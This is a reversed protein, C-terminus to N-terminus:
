ELIANTITALIHLCIPMRCEPLTAPISGAEQAQMWCGFDIARETHEKALVIDDLM